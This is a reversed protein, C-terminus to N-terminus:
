WTKSLGYTLGLVWYTQIPNNTLERASAEQKNSRLGIDLGVGIGKVATSFHNVWTWNSLEKLDKYSAFLSLNSKWAFDKNFQKTYDLIVKAGLSSQYDSDEKSFVWNFNLSHAVARFNPSPTWTFGGGGIDLYGPNNFTGDLLSTRYEALVSLALKPTIKWGFLSTANFADSAVEFGTEDETNDKNDFKLWGTNNNFANKWFYKRQEIEVFGNVTLGINVATTNPAEKGLWDSYTSVNFGGTGFVGFKWRPFPTIKDKLNAVEKTLSDTQETLTKLQIKLSDLQKSKSDYQKSLLNSEQARLGSFLFLFLISFLSYKM